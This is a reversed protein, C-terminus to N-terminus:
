KGVKEMATRADKLAQAATKSGKLANQVEASLIGSIEAYFPSQPRPAATEFVAPFMAYFPYKALIDADSYLARRAPLFTDNLAHQKQAWEGAYFDMFLAAAKKNKSNKNLFLQWGGLVSVGREGRPGRPLPAVGLKGVVSSTKPDQGMAYDKPWARMFVQRGQFMSARADGSSYSLVGEPMLKEKYARAMADLIEVNAASDVAYAGDKGIVSGGNSYFWEVANCTLGEGNALSGVLAYLPGGEGAAVARSTEFLEDYTAPVKKGYKQLLDTRYYLVGADTRFPIGWLKGGYSAAQITGPLFAERESAPFYADMPEILGAAAFTATWTVDANFFDISDDGSRLAILLAQLKDNTAEPLEVVNVTIEPHAKNFEAVIKAQTDGLTAAHAYWNLVVPKGDAAKADPTGSASAAYALAALSLAAMMRKTM